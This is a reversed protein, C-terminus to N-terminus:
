AGVPNPGPPTLPPAPQALPTAPMAAGPVPAPQPQNVPAPAAGEPTYGLDALQAEPPQGPNVSAAGPTSTPKMTNRATATERITDMAQEAQADTDAKQQDEREKQAKAEADDIKKQDEAGVMESGSVNDKALDIGEKLEKLERGLTGRRIANQAWVFAKEYDPFILPVLASLVAGIGGGVMAGRGGGMMGGIAAGGTAGLGLGTMRQGTQTGFMRNVLDNNWKDAIMQLHRPDHAASSGQEREELFQMVDDVTYKKALKFMYGAEFARVSASKNRLSKPIPKGLDESMSDMSAPGKPANQGTAKIKARTKPNERISKRSKPGLAQQDTLGDPRLPGGISLKSGVGGGTGFREVSHKAERLKEKLGAGKQMRKDAIRKKAANLGGAMDPRVISQVKKRTEPNNRISQLAKPGLGPALTEAGDDETNGAGIRHLKYQAKRGVEGVRDKLGASKGFAPKPRDMQMSNLRTSRGAGVQDRNQGAAVGEAALGGTNGLKKRDKKLGTTEANFGQAATALDLAAKKHHLYAIQFPNLTTM